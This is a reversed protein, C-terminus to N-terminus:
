RMLRAPSCSEVDILPLYKVHAAMSRPSLSASISAAACSSCPSARAIQAIRILEHSFISHLSIKWHWSPRRKKHHLMVACTDGPAARFESVCSEGPSCPYVPEPVQHPEGMGTKQSVCCVHHKCNQSCEFVICFLWSRLRHQCPYFINTKTCIMNNTLNTVIINRLSFQFSGPLNQSFSLIWYM